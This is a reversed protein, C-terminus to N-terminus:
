HWLNVKKLVDRIKKEENIVFFSFYVNQMSNKNTFKKSFILVTFIRIDSTHGKSFQLDIDNAAISLYLTLFCGM